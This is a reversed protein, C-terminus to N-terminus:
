QRDNLHVGAVLTDRIHDEVSDAADLVACVGGQAYRTCGDSAKQKTLIAVNGYEAVKLAYTLGAVGSGIVVFDYQRVTPSLESRRSELPPHGFADWNVDGVCKLRTRSNVRGVPRKQILGGRDIPSGLHTRGCILRSHPILRAATLSM